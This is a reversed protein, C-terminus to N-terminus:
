KGKTADRMAALNRELEDAEARKVINEAELRAAELAASREFKEAAALRAALRANVRDIELRSAETAEATAQAAFLKADEIAAARNAKNEAEIRAAELKAREVEARAEQAQAVLKHVEQRPINIGALQIAKEEADHAIAFKEELLGLAAHVQTMEEDTFLSEPVELRAVKSGFVGREICELGFSNPGQHLFLIEYKTNRHTSANM